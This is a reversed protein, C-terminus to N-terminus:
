VRKRIVIEGGEEERKFPAATSTFEKLARGVTQSSGHGTREWFMFAISEASDNFNIAPKEQRVLHEQLYAWTEKKIAVNLDIEQNAPMPGSKNRERESLGEFVLLSNLRLKEKAMIQYEANHKKKNNCFLHALILNQIDNFKKDNNLHDFTRRMNPDLPNFPLNCYFCNSGDRELLIPLFKEKQYTTLHQQM